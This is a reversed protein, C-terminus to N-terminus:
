RFAARLTWKGTRIRATLLRAQGPEALDRDCVANGSSKGAVAETPGGDPGIEPEQCMQWDAKRQGVAPRSKTSPAHLAGTQATVPERLGPEGHSGFFNSNIKGTIKWDGYQNRWM